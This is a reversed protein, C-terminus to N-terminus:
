NDGGELSELPGTNGTRPFLFESPVIRFAIEGPSVVVEHLTVSVRGRHAKSSCRVISSSHGIM